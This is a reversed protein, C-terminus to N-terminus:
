TESTSKGSPKPESKTSRSSQAPRARGERIMTAAQDDDVEITKGIRSLDADFAIVVRTM